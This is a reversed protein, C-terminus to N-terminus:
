REAAHRDKWGLAEATAQCALTMASYLHPRTLIDTQMDWWEYLKCAYCPRDERCTSDCEHEVFRLMWIEWADYDSYHAKGEMLNRATLDMWPTPYDFMGNGHLLDQMEKLEM